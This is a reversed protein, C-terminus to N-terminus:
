KTEHQLVRTERSLLSHSRPAGKFKNRTESAGPTTIWWIMLFGM